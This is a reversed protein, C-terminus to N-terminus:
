WSDAAEYQAHACVIDSMLLYLLKELRAMLEPNEAEYCNYWISQLSKILHYPTPYPMIARFHIETEAEDVDKYRANYARKNM